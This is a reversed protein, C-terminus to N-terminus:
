SRVFRFGFGSNAGTQFEFKNWRLRFYIRAKSLHLIHNENRNWKTKLSLTYRYICNNLEGEILSNKEHMENIRDARCINNRLCLPLIHGIEPNCSHWNQGNRPQMQYVRTRYCVVTSTYKRNQPHRWTKMYRLGSDFVTNQGTRWTSDRICM